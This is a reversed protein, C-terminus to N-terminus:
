EAACTQKIKDQPISSYKKYAAFADLTENMDDETHTAMVGLRIRSLKKPVAPYPVGNVFINKEHLFGIAKRLEVEDGIIVPVIASETDGTEFGLSDLNKKMYRSNVRLRAVREPEERIIKIAEISAAVDSPPLSSSFMSSRGYYRIYNVIEKNSSVYGGISGIAKSLCGTVADIKGELGYHEMTGLGSKGIVGLAHAEDVVVLADCGSARELISPLRAIDGDMSFVGDTVVIIKRTGCSRALVRALSSADNHRYVSLKSEVLKTGEFLSAHNLRDHVIMDDKGCLSVMCALNAAYGSSFLVADEHGYIAAIEYELKKHLDFTGSFLPVSGTGTGYKRIAAHAAEAIRPHTALGLYNNSGFMIMDREVRIYDDFIKVRHECPSTLPREYFFRQRDRGDELFDYFSRFHKGYKTGPSDFFDALTHEDSNIRTEM